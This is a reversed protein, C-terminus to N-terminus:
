INKYNVILNVKKSFILKLIEEINNYGFQYEKLLEFIVEKQLFSDIKEFSDVLFEFTNEKKKVFEKIFSDRKEDLLSSAYSIREKFLLYAEDFNENEKFFEPIVHHRYRNREYDDESNSSDEFYKLSHERAYLYIDEKLVRMFPRLITMEGIVNVEKIGSISKLSAKRSLRIFTTEMDDNLHHALFLYKASYKKVLDSFFCLRKDRAKKQFNAESIENDDVLSLVEIEYLNKSYARIFEEEIESQTRKKHNVHGIVIKFHMEKSAKELVDLLTMSDVGCSVGAVITQDHLDINNRNLFDYFENLVNMVEGVICNYM